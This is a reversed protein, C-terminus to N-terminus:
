LEREKWIVKRSFLGAVGFILLYAFYFLEFFFFDKLLNTIKLRRLPTLLVRLDAAFLFFFPVFTIIADPRLVWNILLALHTFVSFFTVFYGWPRMSKGGHVWRLRQHFFSKFNPLPHSYIATRPDIIHIIKWDTQCRIAEMLAFDETVSFGIQEFGGVQQYAKLRFGFNNGLISIPKGANSNFVNMTQLFAWDLAQVRAFLSRNIKSIKLNGFPFLSTFSGVLGINDGFYHVMNEIWTKPVVCDADTILVIDHEVQKLGQALVNMKGKLNAYSSTIDVVKIQDFKESFQEAIRPSADTSSDNLVLVDYLEAPYTQESLSKLCDAIYKEENRMAVLVAVRPKKTLKKIRKPEPFLSLVFAILFYLGSLIWALQLLWDMGNM